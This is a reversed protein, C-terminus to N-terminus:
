GAVTSQTGAYRAKWVEFRGAVVQETEPPMPRNLRGGSVYQYSEPSPQAQLRRVTEPLLDVQTELLRLGVDLWSDDPWVPVRRRLVIRGADIREDILHATVGPPVGHYVSWKLADLGRVEPILGPHFNVLGIRPAAIIHPKIIRAGAIVVLDISREWLLDATATANHELVLYPIGLRACLRAPHLLGSHRPATRLTPAPRPVEQIPAGVVAAAPIDELWLRLLFEQGKKHPFDYVFVAINM